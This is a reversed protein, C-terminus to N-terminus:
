SVAQSSVEMFENCGKPTVYIIKFEPNGLRLLKTLDPFFRVLCGGCNRAADTVLSIFRDGYNRDRDMNPLLSATLEMLTLLTAVRRQLGQHEEMKLLGLWRELVDAAQVGEVNRVADAAVAGDQQMNDAQAIWTGALTDLQGAFWAQAANKHVPALGKGRINHAVKYLPGPLQQLFASALKLVPNYPVQPMLSNSFPWFELLRYTVISKQVGGARHGCNAVLNSVAVVYAGCRTSLIPFCATGAMPMYVHRM